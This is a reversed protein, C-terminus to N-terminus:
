EAAIGRLCRYATVAICFQICDAMDLWYLEQRVAFHSGRDFKRNNTIVRAVANLVRQLKVILRRLTHSFAVHARDVM